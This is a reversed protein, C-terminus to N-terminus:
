YWYSFFIAGFTTMLGAILISLGSIAGEVPGMEMARTTGIAHSATGIGVGRAVPDTIRFIKCVTEAIINGVVGTLVIVTVTISVNGGLEESIGMGIATTVSKPLFTVFEAHTFHCLVSYLLVVLMSTVTGALIGLLIATYNKKLVELQEYLPIALCVTAPTLLYSVYRAGAYYTTYPIRFIELVAVTLLIAILLPNIFGKKWKKRCLVGVEYAAISLVAGFFVSYEIFAIM